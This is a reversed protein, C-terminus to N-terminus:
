QDIKDNPESEERFKKLDTRREKRKVVDARYWDKGLKLGAETLKMYGYGLKVLLGRKALRSVAKSTIVRYSDFNQGAFYGSKVINDQKLDWEPSNPIRRFRRHNSYADRIISKQPESLGQGM